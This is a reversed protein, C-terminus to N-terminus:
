RDRRCEEKTLFHHIGSPNQPHAPTRTLTRLANFESPPGEIVLQYLRQRLDFDSLRREGLEFITVAPPLDEETLEKTTSSLLVQGRTVLRESGRQGTVGIWVYRQGGARPEGTHLGMRM